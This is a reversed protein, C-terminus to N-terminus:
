LSTATTSNALTPTAVAACPKPLDEPDVDMEHAIIRSKLDFEYLRARDSFPGGVGGTVLLWLTATSRQLKADRPYSYDWWTTVQRTYDEDSFVLDFTTNMNGSAVVRVSKSEALHLLSDWSNLDGRRHPAICAAATYRDVALQEASPQWSWTVGGVLIASGCFFLILNFGNPRRKM